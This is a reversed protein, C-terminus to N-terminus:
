KHKDGDGEGETPEEPPGQLAGIFAAIAQIIKFLIFGGILLGAIGAIVQGIVTGQDSPM